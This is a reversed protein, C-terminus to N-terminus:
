NEPSIELKEVKVIEKLVLQEKVLEVMTERLKKKFEDFGMEFQGAILWREFLLRDQEEDMAFLLFAVGDDAPM